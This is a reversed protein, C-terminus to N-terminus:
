TKPRARIVQMSISASLTVSATLHKRIRRGILGIMARFIPRGKWTLDCQYALREYDSRLDTHHGSHGQKKALRENKWEKISAGDSDLADVDVTEAREDWRASFKPLDFETSKLVFLELHGYPTMRSPKNVITVYSADRYEETFEIDEVEFLTDWKKVKEPDAM